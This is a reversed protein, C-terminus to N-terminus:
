DLEIEDQYAPVSANWGNKEELYKKFDNASETEGHVVFVRKPAKKLGSLWKDLEDRDAHASFGHIREIRANVKRTSGLIRVEREGSVIHRGLTGFAQYGVFMVTSEPREINNVLHHKVRGGTCMGSGAIILVTGKISNISKSERTSRTMKLNSFAFPSDDNSILENMDKDFFEPYKEFVQTVSIAMPSDLFTMLHPIADDNLLEHLYYLVEQAREIAFSPVIINGGRVFTDNIVDALNQKIDTINEHVRNGYTSEILVYDAQEIVAPDRLIPRDWRGVDGSFLISRKRGGNTITLKISASGLIHGADYFVAEIGEGIEVPKEYKVAKFLPSCAQADEQTYLPRIEYPGTRGEKRHRKAKFAADEEQLTAADLLVIRTIESTANTCYIKGAFGEKVLKPILGCHDLHAHTLLLCDIEEAPIPFKDWNRDQLDREQYLGCDILIKKGNVRVLFRSGTVNQSAGLFALKIKM